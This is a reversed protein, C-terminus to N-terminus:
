NCVFLQIVVKPVSMPSRKPFGVSSDSVAHRSVEFSQPALAARSIYLLHGKSDLVKATESPM